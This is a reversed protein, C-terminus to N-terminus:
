ELGFDFAEGNRQRSLWSVSLMSLKMKLSLCIFLMLPEVYICKPCPILKLGEASGAYTERVLGHGLM